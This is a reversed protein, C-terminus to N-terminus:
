FIKESREAAKNIVRDLSAETFRVCKGMRVEKLGRMKLKPLNREITRRVVSLRRAVHDMTLLQESM